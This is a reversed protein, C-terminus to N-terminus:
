ISSKGDWRANAKLGFFNYVEALKSTGWASELVAQAIVASYAKVGYQPAYKVVAAAIEKIFLEKDM